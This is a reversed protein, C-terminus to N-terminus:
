AQGWLVWCSSALADVVCGYDGHWICPNQLWHDQTWLPNWNGWTRAILFEPESLPALRLGLRIVLHDLQEVVDPGCVSSGCSLGLLTLDQFKPVLLPAPPLNCLLCLGVLLGLWAPQSNTQRVLPWVMVGLERGVNVQVNWPNHVKFSIHCQKQVNIPLWCSDNCSLCQTVFM